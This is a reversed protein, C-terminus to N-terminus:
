PFLFIFDINSVIVSSCMNLSKYNIQPYRHLIDPRYSRLIGCDKHKCPSELNQSDSIVKANKKPLGCVFFVDAFTDAMFVEGEELDVNDYELRNYQLLSSNLSCTGTSENKTEKKGLIASRLIDMQLLNKTTLLRKKDRGKFNDPVVFSLKKVLKAKSPSELKTIPAKIEELKIINSFDPVSLKPNHTVSREIKFWM